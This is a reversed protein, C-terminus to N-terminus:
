QTSYVGYVTTSSRVRPSIDADIGDEAAEERKLKEAERAGIVKM